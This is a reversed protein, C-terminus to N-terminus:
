DHKGRGTDLPRVMCLIHCGREFIGVPGGSGEQRRDSLCQMTAVMHNSHSNSPSSRLGCGCQRVISTTIHPCAWTIIYRVISRRSDHPERQTCVHSTKSYSYGSTLAMQGGWICYETHIYRCTNSFISAGASTLM